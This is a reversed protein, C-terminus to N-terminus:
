KEDMKIEKQYEGTQGEQQEAAQVQNPDQGVQQQQQKLPDRLPLEPRTLTGAVDSIGGLSSLLKAPRSPPRRHRRERTSRIRELEGGNLKPQDKIPNFKEM